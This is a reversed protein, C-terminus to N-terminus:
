PLVFLWLDGDREAVLRTGSPSLVPNRYTSLIDLLVSAGSAIDMVMITGGADLQLPPTGPPNLAADLVAAGGGVVATIRNGAVQVDRAIPGFASLDQFVSTVGTSVVHRYVNHDGVVTFLLADGDQVAVSSAFAAGPLEVPGGSFVDQVMLAQGSEVAVRACPVSANVCAFGNFGARYVITLPNLWRTHSVGTYFSAGLTFPISLLTRAGDISDLRGVALENFRWGAQTPLRSTRVFALQRGADVAPVDFVNLSDRSPETAACYSRTIRGGDPPLIVLCRDDDDRDQREASYVLGSEDPLWAANRDAGPNM